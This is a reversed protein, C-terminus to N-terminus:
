RSGAGSSFIATGWGPLPFGHADRVQDTWDYSGSNIVPGKAPFNDCGALLLASAFFLALPCRIIAHGHVCDSLSTTILKAQV